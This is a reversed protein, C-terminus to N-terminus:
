GSNAQQRLASEVADLGIDRPRRFASAVKDCDASPVGLEDFLVRWERTVRAVRDIIAAANKRLLGYSGHAELLNDLTALRGRPGVSMHLYRELAVQPRPVVDYMPSLRWGKGEADWVFAHNRLHDDDNSILINFAIRGYLEDRDAKVRSDVGVEGIKVAIDEYPTGLSETEHKGLITLASVCHRRIFANGVARRDFREILMVQRGDALTSLDTVPVNLDAKRALELCAREVAPVNFSDKKAPFKALYQEGQHIVLAKPRAGGMTGVFFISELQAPIPAGVQIRDAAELLYELQMIPPLLGATETSDLGLRFDLAGFRHPGANLLYISEAVSDPPVKLKAEM